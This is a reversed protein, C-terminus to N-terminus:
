LLMERDRKLKKQVNTLQDISNNEEPALLELQYRYFDGLLNLFFARSEINKANAICTQQLMQVIEVLTTKTEDKLRECYNKIQSEYRKLKPQEAM